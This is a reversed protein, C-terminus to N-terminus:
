DVIKIGYISEIIELKKQLYFVDEEYKDSIAIIEQKYYYILSCVPAYGCIYRAIKNFCNCRSKELCNEFTSIQKENLSFQIM